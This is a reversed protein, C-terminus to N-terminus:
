KIIKLDQYNETLCIYTKKDFIAKITQNYSKFQVVWVDPLEEVIKGRYFCTVDDRGSCKIKPQVLKLKIKVGLSLQQLM